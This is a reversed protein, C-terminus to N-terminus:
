QMLVLNICLSVQVDADITAPEAVALYNLTAVRHIYAGALHMTAMFATSNHAGRAGM